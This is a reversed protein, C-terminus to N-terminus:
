GARYATLKKDAVSVAQNREKWKSYPQNSM